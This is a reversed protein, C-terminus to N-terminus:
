VKEEIKLILVIKYRNALTPTETNGDGDDDM